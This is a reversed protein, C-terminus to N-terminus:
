ISNQSCLRGGDQLVAFSMQHSPPTHHKFIHLACGTLHQIHCKTLLYGPWCILHSMLQGQLKPENHCEPPEVLQAKSVANGEEGRLCRMQQGPYTNVFHWGSCRVLQTKCMDLDRVRGLWWVLHQM